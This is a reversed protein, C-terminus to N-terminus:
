RPSAGTMRALVRKPLSRQAFIEQKRQSFGEKIKEALGQERTWIIDENLAWWAVVDNYKSIHDYDADKFYNPRELSRPNKSWEHWIPLVTEAQEDTCVFHVPEEYTPRVLTNTVVALRSVNSIIRKASDPIAGWEFESAGMYDFGLGARRVPDLDSDMPSVSGWGNAGITMLAGEIPSAPERPPPLQNLRQVLDFHRM